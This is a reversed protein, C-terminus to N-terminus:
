TINLDINHMSVCVDMSLKAYLSYSRDILQKRLTSSISYDYADRVYTYFLACCELLNSKLTSGLCRGPLVKNTTDFIM